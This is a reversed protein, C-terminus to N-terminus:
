KNIRVQKGYCIGGSILSFGLEMRTDDLINNTLNKETLFYKNKRVM